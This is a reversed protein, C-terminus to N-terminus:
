GWAKRQLVSQEPNKNMGWEEAVDKTPGTPGRPTIAQAASVITDRSGKNMLAYTLLAALGAKGPNKMGWGVLGGPRFGRKYYVEGVGKVSGKVVDGAKKGSQISKYEKKSIPILGGDKPGGPIAQLRRGQMPGTEQRKGLLVNMFANGVGGTSKSVAAGGSKFPATFFNDVKNGVRRFFGEEAATKTLAEALAKKRLYKDLSM